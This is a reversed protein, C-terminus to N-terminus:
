LVDVSASTSASGIPLTKYAAHSTGMDVLYAMTLNVTSTFTISPDTDTLYKFEGKLTFANSTEEPTDNNRFINPHKYQSALMIM